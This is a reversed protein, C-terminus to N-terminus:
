NEIVIKATDVKNECAFKIADAIDKLKFRHSVLAKGDIVGDELLKVALPTRMAPSAFSGRLQLKNFHFYNADFTINGAAGTEIGIFAAIAGMAAVGLLDPITSPPSTVLLKNPKMDFKYDKVPMKDVEIIEDAGFQLALEKRKTSDSLECAYIKSAGAWKALQLAMLGIPGLGSVLVVDGAKVEAVNFIDLAVGLPEALCAAYPDLGSYKVLSIERVKMVESFGTFQLPVLNECYEQRMDKCSNCQGCASSSDMVITDGAKFRTVDCGVELVTGAVEHGFRKYEAVGKRATMIDTGCIGCADVKVLVESGGLEGAEVDRLIVDDTNKLFAAQM